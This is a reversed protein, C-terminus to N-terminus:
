RAAGPGSRRRRSPPTGASPGPPDAVADPGRAAPHRASGSRGAPPPPSPPPNSSPKLVRIRFPSGPQSGTRMQTFSAAATGKQEMLKTILSIWLRTRHFFTGPADELRTLADRFREKAQDHHEGEGAGEAHRIGTAIVHARHEDAREAAVGRPADDIADQVEHTAETFLSAAYVRKPRQVLGGPGLLRMADDGVRQRGHHRGRQIGRIVFDQPPLENFQGRRRDCACRPLLSHSPASATNRQTNTMVRGTAIGNVKM